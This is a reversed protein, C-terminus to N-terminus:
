SVYGYHINYLNSDTPTSSENWICKNLSGAYNAIYMMNNSFSNALQNSNTGRGFGANTEVSTSLTTAYGEFRIQQINATSNNLKFQLFSGYNSTTGNTRVSMLILLDTVYRSQSVSRFLM